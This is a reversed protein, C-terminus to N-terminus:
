GPTTASPACGGGGGERLLRFLRGRSLIMDDGERWCRLTTGALLLTRRGPGPDNTNNM